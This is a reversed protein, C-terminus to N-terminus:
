TQFFAPCTTASFVQGANEVDYIVEYEKEM